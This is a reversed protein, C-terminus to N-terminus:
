ITAGAVMVDICAYHHMFVRIAPSGNSPSRFEPFDHPLRGFDQSSPSLLPASPNDGGWSQDRINIHREETKCIGAYLRLMM